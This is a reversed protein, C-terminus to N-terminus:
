DRFLSAASYMIVPHEFSLLHWEWLIRATNMISTALSEVRRCKNILRPSRLTLTDLIHRAPLYALTVVRNGSIEQIHGHKIYRM